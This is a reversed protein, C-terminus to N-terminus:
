EASLYSLGTQPDPNSGIFFLNGVATGDPTTVEMVLELTGAPVTAILPVTFISDVVPGSHQDDGSTAIKTRTAM